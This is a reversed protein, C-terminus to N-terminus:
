DTIDTPGICSGVLENVSLDHTPDDYVRVQPRETPMAQGALKNVWRAYQEYSEPSGHKGLYITRGEVVIRAQGSPKHLGYSPVKKQRLV